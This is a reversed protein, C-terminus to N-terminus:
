LCRFLYELNAFMSPWVFKAARYLKREGEFNVTATQWPSLILAELQQFSPRCLWAMSVVSVKFKVLGLQEKGLRLLATGRCIPDHHPITCAELLRSM